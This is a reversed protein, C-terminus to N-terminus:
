RRQVKLESNLSTGRRTRVSWLQGVGDSEVSGDSSAGNGVITSDESGFHDELQLMRLEDLEGRLLLRGQVKVRVLLFVHLDELAAEADFNVALLADEGLVVALNKDLGPDVM